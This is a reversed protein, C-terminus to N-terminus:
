EAHGLAPCGLRSMRRGKRSALTARIRPRRAPCAPAILPGTRGVATFPRLADGGADGIGAGAHRAVGVPMPDAGGAKDCPGVAPAGVVGPQAASCANTWAGRAVPGIRIRDIM